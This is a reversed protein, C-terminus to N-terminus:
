GGRIRRRRDLEVRHIYRQIRANMHPSLHLFRCGIRRQPAGSRVAVEFHSRIEVATEISGEDPLEIRCRELVSGAELELHREPEIIGIGGLSIDVITAQISHGGLLFHCLLPAAAPTRVRYFERRQVRIMSQPFPAIFVPAGDREGSELRDIMFQVRVRNHHSLFLVKDAHLLRENAGPDAGPDLYFRQQESDVHVVSTLIFGSDDRVGLTVLEHGRLLDRLVRSIEYRDSTRFRELDNPTVGGSPNLPESPM